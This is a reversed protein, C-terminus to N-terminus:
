EFHQKWNIDKKKYAEVARHTKALKRNDESTNKHKKSVERNFNENLKPNMMRVEMRRVLSAM